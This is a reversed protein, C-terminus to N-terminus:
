IPWAAAITCVLALRIDVPDRIRRPRWAALLGTTLVLTVALIIAPHTPQVAIILISAGLQMTVAVVWTARISTAVPITRTGFRRDARQDDLDCLAADAFVIVLLIAGAALTQAEFTAQRAGILLAMAFAAISAGVGLNKIIFLDKLRRRARAPDAPLGAYVLVGLHAAVVVPVLWVSLLAGALLGIAGAAAGLTRVSRRRPHLFRWRDPHALRDAPDLWRDALKVRDLLYVSVGTCFACALALIDDTSGLRDVGLMVACAFVAGTVYAGACLALHGSSRALSGITSAARPV